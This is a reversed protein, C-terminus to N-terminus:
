RTIPPPITPRRRGQPQARRPERDRQDVRAIGRRPAENPLMPWMAASCTSGNAEGRVSALKGERSNAKPPGSAKRRWSMPSHAGQDSFNARAQVDDANARPVMASSASWRSANAAHARM